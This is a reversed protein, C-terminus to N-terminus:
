AWAGLGGKGGAAGAREGEEKNRSLWQSQSDAEGAQKGTKGATNL